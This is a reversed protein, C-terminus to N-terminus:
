VVQRIDLDRSFSVFAYVKEDDSLSVGSGGVMGDFTGSSSMNILYIDKGAQTNPTLGSLSNISRVTGDRYYITVVLSSIDAGADVMVEVFDNEKPSSYKLESIFPDAM